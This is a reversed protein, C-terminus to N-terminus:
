PNGGYVAKDYALIFKANRVELESMMGFDFTDAPYLPTYWQCSEFYAKLEEHTFIYGHRAYIENRAVLLEWHTLGELDEETVEREASFELIFDKPEEPDTPETPDSPETVPPETAPPETAPPETVAPETTPPQTTPPETAPPQTTPPTTEVPKTTVAPPNNQPRSSPNYIGNPSQSEEPETTEPVTTEPVTTEPVTTEPVTTEPVTTEPVTTETPQTDTSPNTQESTGPDAAAAARHSRDVVAYVLLVVSLILLVGLVAITRYHWPKAPMDGPAIRQRQAM